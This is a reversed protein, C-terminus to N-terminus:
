SVPAPPPKVCSPLPGRQTLNEDYVAIRKQVIAAARRDALTQVFERDLDRLSTLFKRGAESTRNRALCETYSKNASARDLAAVQVILHRNDNVLSRNSLFLFGAM